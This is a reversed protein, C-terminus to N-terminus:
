LLPKAALLLVPLGRPIISIVPYYCLTSNDQVACLAADGDQGRWLCLNSAQPIAIIIAIYSTVDLDASKCVNICDSTKRM